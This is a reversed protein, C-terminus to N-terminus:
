PTLPQMHANIWDVLDARTVTGAVVALIVAENEDDSTPLMHGNIRLTNELAAFGARKNGDFFPHNRVVSYGAAAAAEALTPYLFDGGFTALPQAVASELLGMDRVGDAGGFRQIMVAHLELVTQLTLVYNM